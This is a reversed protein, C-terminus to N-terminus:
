DSMLWRVKVRDTVAELEPDDTVVEGDTQRALAAAFCDACALGGNVKFRAAERTLDHDADVWDIPLDALIAEVEEAKEPGFVRETIYLV